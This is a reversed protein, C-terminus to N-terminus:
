PRSAALIPGARERLGDNILTPAGRLEDVVHYEAKDNKALWAECGRTHEDFYQHRQSLSLCKELAPRAHAVRYPESANYLATTYTNRLEDDNRWAAPIPARRFDDVLDGWMHGSRAGAAIVWRPPAAPKLDLIKAYEPEVAQIAAKKKEYWDKVRTGVHALVDAKSGAGHYEPFRLPDVRARRADEAAAFYAEGVANLARALRKDKQAEDEGAYASRIGAEAAAPDRWLARVKEYERRADAERHLRALSRAYAAHAQVQVDPAARDIVPMAGELTGRAKEWEEREAYHAGLTWAIAASQVPKTAGHVRLFLRADELAETEQGLGLRLLVADSLAVEAKEAKPDAKAFREYWEAALDYVAMAQYSAGVEYVARRALPSGSSSRGRTKGDFEVLARRATIAKALLRAAQYSRAANEAIEDCREAEPAQGAAVPAECHRRFLEFYATGAREHLALAAAGTAARARASEDEASLRALDVRARQFIACDSSGKAKDGACFADLMRPLDRRMDEICSPRAPKVQTRLVELAELYLQASLPAAPHDAYDLAVERLAIAAESWRQLEFLTRARASKVEVLQDRGDKDGPAPKVHCAYRDFAGLMARQAPTATRPEFSPPGQRVQRPGVHPEREFVKQWSLAAAYAAEPALPSRPDELLAADFAAAAEAWREEAFLLDARGYKLSFATPWDERVMRSFEIKALEAAPFAAIAREYLAAALDMTRRDGTGRTGPTGIAELHWSLATEIVTGAAENACRQKDEAPADAFRAAKEAALLAELAAKIPEKAGGKMAMTAQAIRAEYLCPRAGRRDRSALDRYVIIAEPYHGTDLLAQGLDATMALPDGGMGEFFRFARAPDGVKAYAPIVDRRAADALRAAGPQGPALAVADIVKKFADVARAHDGTGEHVWALKYRAYAHVRNAPPPHKIVEGYAQAALSWKAPDGQAEAFFM